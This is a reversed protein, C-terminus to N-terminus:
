GRGLDALASKAEDVDAVLALLREVLGEWARAGAADGLGRQREARAAAEEIGEAHARALGALRARLPPPADALGLRALAADLRSRDAPAPARAARCAGPM